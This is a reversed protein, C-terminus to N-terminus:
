PGKACDTGDVALKSTRETISDCFLLFLPWYAFYVGSCFDIIPFLAATCTTYAMQVGRTYLTHEVVFNKCRVLWIKSMWSFKAGRFFVAIRYSAHM